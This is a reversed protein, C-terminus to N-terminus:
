QAATKGGSVDLCILDGKANRCYIKGNSLVPVTWCKGGLVQARSLPRFGDPSPDIVLLEGKDSLGILKGGALMLSGKGFSKESWKSEGTEWSICKLESTRQETDDVGYVYGQWLISSNIHTRLNKNQWIVAPKGDTLKLRAAGQGADSSFFVEDGSTIPDTCNMGYPTKWPFSWIVKGDAPQVAALSEAGFVLLLRDKGSGFPVPTSYGSAGKGSNWALKGTKKDFATGADGVNLILLDGEVLPSSSFGWTPIEAEPEGTHINKSWVVKGTASELCLLDGKRSLVYVRDGDVTPTANPGGEYMHPDLVCPYSHKWVVAGTTADLCYITDTDDQNGATFVHGQSTTISSFGTGVSIKWLRKPGEDPWKTQWGTEPSIGNLDPGRWRYWDVARATLSCLLPLAATLCGLIQLLRTRKTKM